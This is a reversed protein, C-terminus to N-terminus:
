SFDGFRGSNIHTEARQMVGCTRRATDTRLWVCNSHHIWLAQVLGIIALVISLWIWLRTANQSARSFRDVHVPISIGPLEVKDEHAKESERARQDNARQMADSSVFSAPFTTIQFLLPPAYLLHLLTAAFAPMLPSSPTFCIQSVFRLKAARDKDPCFARGFLGCAYPLEERAVHKPGDVAVRGM